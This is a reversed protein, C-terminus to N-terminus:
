VNFRFIIVDGDKVIYDKGELSLKGKERAVQWSGLADLDDYSVVEAKIFGREFDSHIVGAAQKATMGRKITWARVEKEGATLFSILGLLRYSENIVIDIAPKEIGLSKRFEERDEKSLQSIEMSIEACLAVASSQSPKLISKIEKPINYSEIGDESINLVYIQPKLTLFGFGSLLKLEGETLDTDALFVEDELAERCKKLVELLQGAEKSKAVRQSKELKQINNDALFLDSFILESNVSIIDRAPNVSGNPHPVSQKDFVRVVQAFADVKRLATIYATETKSDSGGTMGAIDIYLIEAPTYKKPDFIEALRDLRKDPVKVVARNAEKTLSFDGVPAQKGTLANFFTTKGSLPLGIIGIEM